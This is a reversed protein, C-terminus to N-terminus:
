FRTCVHLSQLSLVALAKGRGRGKRAPWLSDFTCGRKRTSNGNNTATHNDTNDNEAKVVAVTGGTVGSDHMREIALLVNPKNKNHQIMFLLRLM